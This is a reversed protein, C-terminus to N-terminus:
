TRRLLDELGRVTRWAPRLRGGGGGEPRLTVRRQPLSRRRRGYGQPSIKDMPAGTRFKNNLQHIRHALDHVTCTGLSCGPRRVQNVTSKSRKTRISVDTSSHPALTDKVDEPRVFQTSDAKSAVSTSSLDRKSRNQLWINLRRKMESSLDLKASEVGPTVTALLCWCVVSQLLLKMKDPLRFDKIIWQTDSSEHRTGTLIRCWANAYFANTIEYAM